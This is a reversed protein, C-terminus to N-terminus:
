ASFSFVSVCVCVGDPAVHRHNVCIGKERQEPSPHLFDVEGNGAALRSKKCDDSMEDPQLEEVLVCRRESNGGRHRRAKKIRM